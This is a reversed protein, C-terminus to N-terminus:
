RDASALVYAPVLVRRVSRPTRGSWIWLSRLSGRPRRGALRAAQWARTAAARDISAEPNFAVRAAIEAVALVDPDGLRRAWTVAVDPSATVPLPRDYRARRLRTWTWAGIARQERSGRSLQRRERSWLLAVIIRWVILLLLILLLLILLAILVKMLLSVVLNQDQIPVTTPPPDTPSVPPATTPTVLPPSTPPPPVVVTTDPVAVLVSGPMTWPNRLFPAMAILAIVALLGVGTLMEAFPVLRVRDRLHRQRFPGLMAATVAAAVLWLGVVWLATGAGGLGLAGGLLLLSPVLMALPYRTPLILAMAATTACAMLSARTVPGATNGGLWEALMPVAFTMVPMAALGLLRRGALALPLVVLATLASGGIVWIALGQFSVVHALVIWAVALTPWLCWVSPHRRVIVSNTM